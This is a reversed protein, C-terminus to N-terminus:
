GPAPCGRGCLREHQEREARPRLLRRALVSPWSRDVHPVKWSRRSTIVKEHLASKPKRSFCDPASRRADSGVPSASRRNVLWTPREPSSTKLATAASDSATQSTQQEAM